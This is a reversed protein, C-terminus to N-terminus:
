LVLDALEGWLDAIYEARNSRLRYRWYTIVRNSCVIYIHIYVVSVYQVVPKVDIVVLEVPWEETYIYYSTSRKTYTSMYCIYVVVAAISSNYPHAEVIIYEIEIFTSIQPM